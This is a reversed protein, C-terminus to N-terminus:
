PLFTIAEGRVRLKEAIEERMRDRRALMADIQFRTVWPTLERELDERTLADIREWLHRDVQTPGELGKLSRTRVFARSHDILFLHGDDDRLLNGRNRDINGIFQDFLKMRSIQHSWRPGPATPRDLADWPRVNEIWMIGAGTIRGVRREVSPPVMHLDLLRSLRYAAIESRYSEEYGKRMGTPLPKWAMSAAWGGPAFFARKPKTVGVPVDEMREVSATRLFEEIADEHGLWGYSCRAPLDARSASAATTEDSTRAFAPVSSFCAILIAVALVTRLFNRM